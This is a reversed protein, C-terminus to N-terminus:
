GRDGERDQRRSLIKGHSPKTRLVPLQPRLREHGRCPWANLSWSHGPDTRVETRPSRPHIRTCRQIRHRQLHRTHRPRVRRDRYPQSWPGEDARGQNGDALRRFRWSGAKGQPSLFDFVIRPVKEAPACSFFPLLPIGWYESMQTADATLVIRAM